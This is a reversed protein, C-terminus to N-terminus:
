PWVVQSVVLTPRRSSQSCDWSFYYRTDQQADYGWAGRCDTIPAARTAADPAESALGARTGNIPKAVTWGPFWYVPAAGAGDASDVRFCEILWGGHGDSQALPSDGALCGYPMAVRAVLQLSPVSGPTPAAGPAKAVLPLARRYPTADQSHATQQAIALMLWLLLAALLALLALKTRSM